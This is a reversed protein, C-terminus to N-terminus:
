FPCQIGAPGRSIDVLARADQYFKGGLRQNFPLTTLDAFELSTWATNVQTLQSCLATHRVTFVPLNFIVALLSPITAQINNSVTQLTTLAVVLDNWAEPEGFVSNDSPSSKSIADLHDAVHDVNKLHVSFLGEFKLIDAETVALSTAPFSIALLASFIKKFM